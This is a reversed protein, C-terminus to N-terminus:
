VGTLGLSLHAAESRASGLLSAVIGRIMGRAAEDPVTFRLGSVYAAAGPMTRSRQLRCRVVVCTLIVISGDWEFRLKMERRIGLPTDHEVRAGVSSLDVLQASMGAVFAPVPRELAVRQVRRKEVYGKASAASTEM